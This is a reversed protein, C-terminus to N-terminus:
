LRYAYKEGLRRALISEDPAKELAEDILTEDVGKQRLEMRLMRRGRPRFTTRNDVWNQAFSSDGAIRSEILRAMIHEIVDDGYGKEQLKKRIETESRIRYDLFNLARRYAKELTDAQTLQEKKKEDLEQGVSLWAGVLRDIGFAFEGDLYVNIRSPDRKQVKLATIKSGM